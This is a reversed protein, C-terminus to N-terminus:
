SCDYDERAMPLAQRPACKNCGACTFAATSQAPVFHASSSTRALNAGKERSELRTSRAIKKETSGRGSENESKLKLFIFAIWVFRISPDVHVTRFVAIQEVRMAGPLPTGYVEHAFAFPCSWGEEGGSGTTLRGTAAGRQVLRHNQTATSNDHTASHAPVGGQVEVTRCQPVVYRSICERHVYPRRGRERMADCRMTPCRTTRKITAPWRTKRPPAGGADESGRVDSAASMSRAVCENRATGGSGPSDCETRLSLTVSCSLKGCCTNALGSSRIHRPM